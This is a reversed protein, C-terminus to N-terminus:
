KKPKATKGASKRASKNTSSKGRGMLARAAKYNAM